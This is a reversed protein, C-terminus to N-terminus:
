LTRLATWGFHALSLLVLGGAGAVLLLVLAALLPQLLHLGPWWRRAAEVSM